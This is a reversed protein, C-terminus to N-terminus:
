NLKQLELGKDNLGYCWYSDFHGDDKKETLGNDSFSKIEEKWHSIFEDDSMRGSWANVPHTKIKLARLFEKERETLIYQVEM